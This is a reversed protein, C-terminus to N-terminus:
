EQLVQPLLSTDQQTIFFPPPGVAPIISSFFYSVESESSHLAPQPLAVREETKVAVCVLQAFGDRLKVLEAQCDDHEGAVVLASRLSEGFVGVQILHFRANFWAVFVLADLLEALLTVDHLYEIIFQQQRNMWGAFCTLLFRLPNM